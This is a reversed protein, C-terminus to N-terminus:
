PSNKSALPALICQIQYGEYDIFSKSDLTITETLQNGNIVYSVKQDIMVVSGSRTDRITHLGNAKSGDNAVDSLKVAASVNTNKPLPKLRFDSIETESLPIKCHPDAFYGFMTKELKYETFDVKEFSFREIKSYAKAAWNSKSRDATKILEKSAQMYSPCCGFWITKDIRDKSLSPPPGSYKGEDATNLTQDAQGSNEEKKTSLSTEPDKQNESPEKSSFESSNCAVMLIGFIFNQFFYIKM